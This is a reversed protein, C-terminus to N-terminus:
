ARCRFDLSPRSIIIRRWECVMIRLIRARIEIGTYTPIGHILVTSKVGPSGISVVTVGSARGQLADETRVPKQHQIDAGKVSSIAGSVKTVRQFGYGVVVVEDLKGSVAELSIDM